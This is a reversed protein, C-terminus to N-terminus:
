DALALERESRDSEERRTKAADPVFFVCIQSLLVVVGLGVFTYRLGEAKDSFHGLVLTVLTTGVVNGTNGFMARLAAVASIRDPLLDFHANQGSPAAIGVGLGGICMIIALMGFNSLHIGAVSVDHLGLSTLFMCMALLYIGTLWPRRYGFRILFVSGVVSVVSATLARPTLIAGSAAASMGYAVTAYYPVFNFFANQAGSWMFIQTNSALLPRWRILSLEIIPEEVKNEAICFAVLFLLGVALFTLSAINFMDDPHNAMDTLGYLLAFMGAAFLGAGTYDMKTSAASATARDRPIFALGFILIAIGLPINVFFIWRWSLHDTIIGGINPGIIGGMQFITVFLGVATQRNEQFVDSVVGAASPFFMGGGIGQLVRFVILVYITPSLGAGISGVLFLVVACLFLRKRGWREALKGALPLAITQTLQYSTLSWTVLALSTKMERLMAPLAVAVITADISAMLLGSSVIVFIFYNKATSHM